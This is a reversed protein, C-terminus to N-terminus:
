GVFPGAKVMVKGQEGTAQRAALISGEAPGVLSEQKMLRIDLVVALEPRSQPGAGMPGEKFGLEAGASETRHLPCECMEACLSGSPDRLEQLM